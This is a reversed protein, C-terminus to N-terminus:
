FLLGLSEGAAASGVEPAVPVLELAVPKETRAEWHLAKPRSQPKLADSGQELRPALLACFILLGRPRCRWCATLLSPSGCILSCRPSLVPLPLHLQNPSPLCWPSPGAAEAACSSRNQTSSLSPYHLLTSFSLDQALTGACPNINCFCRNSM